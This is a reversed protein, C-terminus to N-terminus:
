AASRKARAALAAESRAVLRAALFEALASYADLYPGDGADTLRHSGVIRALNADIHADHETQREIPHARGSRQVHLSLDTLMAVDCSLLAFADRTRADEAEYGRRAWTSWPGFDERLWREAWEPTITGRKAFPEGECGPMPVLNLLPNLHFREVRDTM